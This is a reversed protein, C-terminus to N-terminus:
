KELGEVARFVTSVTKRNALVELVASFRPTLSLLSKEISIV